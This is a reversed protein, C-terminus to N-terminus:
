PRYLSIFSKEGFKCSLINQISASFLYPIMASEKPQSHRRNTTTILTGHWEYIQNKITGNKLKETASMRTRLIMENNIRSKNHIHTIIYLTYMDFLFTKKWWVFEKRLIVQQPSQKTGDFISCTYIIQNVNDCGFIGCNHKCHFSCVIENYWKQKKGRERERKDRAFFFMEVFRCQRNLRCSSLIECDSNEKM